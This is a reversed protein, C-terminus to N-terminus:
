PTLEIREPAEGPTEQSEVHGAEQRVVEVGGGRGPVEVLVSTRDIERRGRAGAGIQLADVRQEADPVEAAEIRTRAVDETGNGRKVDSVREEDHDLSPPQMAREPARQDDREVDPHAARGNVEIMVPDDVDDRAGHVGDRGRDRDTADV